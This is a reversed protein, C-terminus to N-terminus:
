HLEKLDGGGTTTKFFATVSILDVSIPCIDINM